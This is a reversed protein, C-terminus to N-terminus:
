VEAIEQCRADEFIKRVVAATKQKGVQVAILIGGEALKKQYQRSMPGALGFRGLFAAAAGEEAGIEGSSSSADKIRGTGVFHGAGGVVAPGIGALLGVGKNLSGREGAKGNERASTLVYIAEKTFGADTVSRTVEQADEDADALCLVYHRMVAKTEKPITKLYRLEFERCTLTLVVIM